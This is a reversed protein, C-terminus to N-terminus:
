YQKLNFLPLMSANRRVNMYDGTDQDMYGHMQQYRAEAQDPSSYSPYQSL